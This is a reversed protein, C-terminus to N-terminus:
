LFRLTTGRAPCPSRGVGKRWNALRGCSLRSGNPRRAAGTMRPGATEDTRAILRGAPTTIQMLYIAALASGGIGDSGLPSRHVFVCPSDRDAAQDERCCKSFSEGSV